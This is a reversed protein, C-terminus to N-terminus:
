FFDCSVLVNVRTVESEIWEKKKKAIKVVSTEKYALATKDLNSEKASVAELTLISVM